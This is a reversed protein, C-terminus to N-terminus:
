KPGKPPLDPWTAFETLFNALDNVVAVTMSEGKEATGASPKGMCGPETLRHFRRFVGVKGGYDSDFWKNSLPVENEVIRDKKVLDPRLFLMMSTEIECAHTIRRTELGHREPALVDVAAKWWSALALYADDAVDDTAVMETLAQEGPTENGGHGNLFFIRRFGSRLISQAVSKVMESFLSPTVSITGPFDKHHHSCGLWLCPTLLMADGLKAELRNAIETVQITDVFVPLHHGHQECSAIPVVVPTEKNLSHITPWTQEHWLM